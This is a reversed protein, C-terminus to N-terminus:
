KRTAMTSKLLKDGIWHAYKLGKPTPSIYKTRRDAAESEAKLFDQAILSQLRKHLTAPSGLESKDIMERVTLPEGAAWHVAAAEFLAKHNADLHEFGPIVVIGTSLRLFRLYAEAHPSLKMARSELKKLFMQSKM